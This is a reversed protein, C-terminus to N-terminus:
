QVIYRRIDQFSDGGKTVFIEVEWQGKFPFEVETKYFVGSFNLPLTFDYGAQVPRKCHLSITADTILHADKDLLQVLIKGKREAIATYTVNVKWGLEEQDKAKQLTDNYQLGKQYSNETSVGRWTKKAVYIYFINVVLIVAFFAVFIYPIKSRKKETNM